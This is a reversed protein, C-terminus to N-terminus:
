TCKIIEWGEITPLLPDEWRLQPNEQMLRNIEEVPTFEGDFLKRTLIHYQHGMVMQNIIVIIPDWVYMLKINPHHPWVVARTIASPPITGRHACTGLHQLSAEWWTTDTGDKNKTPWNFTFQQKRYHITREKMSGPVPNDIKRSGQELFDEDPYLNLPFLKDTDIEIVACLPEKGKSANFAFYPAYSNTLYVCKPNSNVTHKWNNVGKAGRPHIGIKLINNLWAGNTGHYLKVM